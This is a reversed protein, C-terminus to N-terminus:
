DGTKWTWGQGRKLHTQTCSTKSSKGANKAGLLKTESFPTEEQLSKLLFPPPRPAPHRTLDLEPKPHRPPGWRLPEAEALPSVQPAQSFPTPAGLAPNTGKGMLPFQRQFSGPWPPELYPSISPGGLHGGGQTLGLARPGPAAIGRTNPSSDGQSKTGPPLATPHPDCQPDGGDRRGRRVREGDRQEAAAATSFAVMAAGTCGACGRGGRCGGPTNGAGAPCGGMRGCGGAAGGAALGKSVCIVTWGAPNAKLGPM